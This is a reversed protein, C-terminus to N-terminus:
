RLAVRQFFGVMRENEIPLLNFIIAVEGLDINIVDPLPIALLILIGGICIVYKTNGLTPRSLLAAINIMM